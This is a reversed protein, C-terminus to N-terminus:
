STHPSPHLSAREPGTEEDVSILLFAGLSVLFTVLSFYASHFLCSSATSARAHDGSPIPSVEGSLHKCQPTQGSAPHKSASTSAGQQPGGTGRALDGAATGCSGWCEAWGLSRCAWKGSDQCGPHYCWIEAEWGRSHVIQRRKCFISCDGAVQKQNSIICPSFGTGAATSWFVKTAGNNLMPFLKKLSIKVAPQCPHM